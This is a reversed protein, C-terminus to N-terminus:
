FCVYRHTGNTRNDSQPALSKCSFVGEPLNSEYEDPRSREGAPRVTGVGRLRPYRETRSERVWSALNDGKKTM